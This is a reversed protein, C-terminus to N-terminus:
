RGGRAAHAGGPQRGALSLARPQRRRVHVVSYGDYVGKRNTVKGAQHLRMIGDVIMETHIGFDGKDGDALLQAVSNPIGGIGFQLTAGDEVASSTPPSARSGRRPDRGRAVRLAARDARGPLRGRLRPHPQRRARRSRARAAHRPDVEAIALREPDRAADLFAHFTAGAHLGFNFYGDGDQRRRRQWCWARGRPPRLAGLRPLRGAPLRGAARGRAAHARDPRLVRQHVPRRPAAPVRLARDAARRVSWTVGITASASRPSSRPRSGPPSRRRWTDDRGATRRRRSRACSAAISRQRSATPPGGTTM